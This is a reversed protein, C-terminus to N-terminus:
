RSNQWNAYMAVVWLREEPSSWMGDKGMVFYKYKGGQKERRIKTARGGRDIGEVENAGRSYRRRLAQSAREYAEEDYLLEKALVDLKDATVMDLSDLYSKTKTFAM